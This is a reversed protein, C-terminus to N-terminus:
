STVNSLLSVSEPMAQSLRLQCLGGPSYVKFAPDGPHFAARVSEEQAEKGLM